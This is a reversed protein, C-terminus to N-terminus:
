SRHLLWLQSATLLQFAASHVPQYPASHPEFLGRIILSPADILARSPIVLNEQRPSSDLMPKIRTNSAIRTPMARRCFGALGCKQFIYAPTSCRRLSLASCVRLLCLWGHFLSLWFRILGVSSLRRTKQPNFEFDKKVNTQNNRSHNTRIWSM